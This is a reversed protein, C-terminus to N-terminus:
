IMTAISGQEKTLIEDLLPVEDDNAWSASEIDTDKM